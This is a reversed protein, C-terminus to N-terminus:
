FLRFRLWRLPNRSLEVIASDRAARLKDVQDAIEGDNMGRGLTGHGRDLDARIAGLRRTLANLERTLSDLGAAAVPAAQAFARLNEGTRALAVRLSDDRALRVLSGTESVEMAIGTLVSARERMRAFLASDSRFRGLTGDGAALQLQFRESLGALRGISAVASDSLAMFQEPEFRPAVTMTDDFVFEGSSDTGPDIHLVPPALLASPSIRATADARLLGAMERFLVADVIVRDSGTSTPSGFSISLVRGARAGAVWVEAGPVM